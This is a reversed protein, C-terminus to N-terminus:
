RRRRLREPAGQASSVASRWALTICLDLDACFIVTRVIFFPAISIPMAKHRGAAWPYLSQM